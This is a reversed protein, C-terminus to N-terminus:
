RRDPYQPHDSQRIQGNGNRGHHHDIPVVGQAVGAGGQWGFSVNSGSQSLVQKIMEELVKENMRHVITESFLDAKELYFCYTCALNCDPGAPKVLVSNLQKKIPM